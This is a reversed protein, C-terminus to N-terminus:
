KLEKRPHKKEFYALRARAKKAESQHRKFVMFAYDRDQERVYVEKQLAKHREEYTQEPPM